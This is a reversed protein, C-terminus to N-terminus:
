KAVLVLRFDGIQTVNTLSPQQGVNFLEDIATSYLRYTYGGQMNITHLGTQFCMALDM